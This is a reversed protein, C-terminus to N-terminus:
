QAIIPTCVQTQPTIVPYKRPVYEYNHRLEQSSVLYISTIVTNNGPIEPPVNEYYVQLLPM